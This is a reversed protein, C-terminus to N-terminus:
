VQRWRMERRKPQEGRLCLSCGIQSWGLTTQRSYRLAPPPGILANEHQMISAKLPAAYQVAVIPPTRIFFSGRENNAKRVADSAQGDAIASGDGAADPGRGPVTSAM